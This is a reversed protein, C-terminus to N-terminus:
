HMTIVNDNKFQSIIQGYEILNFNFFRNMIDIEKQYNLNNDTGFQDFQYEYNKVKKVIYLVDDEFTYTEDLKDSCIIVIM